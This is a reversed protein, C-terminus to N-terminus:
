YPESLIHFTVPQAQVTAPEGATSARVHWTAIATYTGPRKPLKSMGGLTLGSVMVPKGVPYTTSWGHGMCLMGPGESTVGKGASDRVEVTVGAGCPLEGSVIERAARFNELTIRLPVDEGSRYQPKDLVLSAAVGSVEPGWAPPIKAPDLITMELANSPLLAVHPAEPPGALLYFQVRTTGPTRLVGLGPARVELRISRGAGATDLTCKRFAPLQHFMAFGAADRTRIFIVPCSQDDLVIQADPDNISIRFPFSDGAYFSSDPTALSISLGGSDARSGPAFSGPLFSDEEVVSCVRHLVAPAVVTIDTTNFGDADICPEGGVQAASKWRLRLDGSQGPALVLTEPISSTGPSACNRCEKAWINHGEHWNDFMVGIGGQLVCATGSVNRYNVLVMQEDPPVNSIAVNADLVAPLCSPVSEQAPQAVPTCVCGFVAFALGAIRM